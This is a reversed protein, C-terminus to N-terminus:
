GALCTERPLAVARGHFSTNDRSTTVNMSSSFSVFTILAPSTWLDTCTQRASVYTCGHDVLWGRSSGRKERGAFQPDPRRYLEGVQVCRRMGRRWRLCRCWMQSYSCGRISAPRPLALSLCPTRQGQLHPSFTSHSQSDNNDTYTEDCLSGSSFCFPRQSHSGFAKLMM